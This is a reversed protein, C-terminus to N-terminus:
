PTNKGNKQGRGFLFSMKTFPSSILVLSRLSVLMMSFDIQFFIVSAVFDIGGSEFMTTVRGSVLLDGRFILPKASSEKETPTLKPKNKLLCVNASFNEPLTVRLRRKVVFFCRVM